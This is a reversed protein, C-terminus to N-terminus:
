LKIKRISSTDKAKIEGTKEKVWDDIKNSYDSVKEEKVGASLLLEKGNSLTKIKTYLDTKKALLNPDDSIDGMDALSDYDELLNDINDMLNTLYNVSYEKVKNNLTRFLLTEKEKDEITDIGRSAYKVGFPTTLSGDFYFKCDQYNDIQLDSGSVSEAPPGAIDYVYAMRPKFINYVSEPIAENNKMFTFLSLIKKEDRAEKEIKERKTDIPMLGIEESEEFMKKNDLPRKDISPRIVRYNEKLENIEFPKLDYKIEEQGTILHNKNSYFNPDQGFHKFTCINDKGKNYCDWTVELGRYEGDLKVVNWSHHHPM